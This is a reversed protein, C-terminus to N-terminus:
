SFAAKLRKYVTTSEALHGCATVSIVSLLSLIALLLVIQVLSIILLVILVLAVLLLSNAGINSLRRGEWALMRRRTHTSM